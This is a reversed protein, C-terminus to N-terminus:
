ARIRVMGIITTSATINDPQVIMRVVAVTVPATTDVV